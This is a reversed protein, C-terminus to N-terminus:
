GGAYTGVSWLHGRPDRVTFGRSGYDEDRLPMVETAGAAIARKHLTDPDDSVVYVASVGTVARDFDARNAVRTLGDLRSEVKVEQLQESLEAVSTGLEEIQTQFQQEREQIAGTLMTTAGHVAREVERMSGTAIAAKLRDLQEM